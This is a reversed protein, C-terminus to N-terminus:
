LCRLDMYVFRRLRKLAITACILIMLPIELGYRRRPYLGYDLDLIM